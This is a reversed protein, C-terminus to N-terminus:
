KETQEGGYAEFAADDSEAAGLDISAGKGHGNKAAGGSSGHRMPAPKAVHKAPAAATRVAKRAPQVRVTAVSQHNDIKFFSIAGRLQEAQGALEGATASVEESAAANQQIVQDLQQLAKNIQGAGADQERSAATIEQVLEATRQVDPLIRALLAGAKEAVTVSSGSLETIEGAAKQSREALKRVESAVVAFGKGHEGARAAEIAANLALLNTQRAIEDIISIKGAILKMAEVTQNVASGGEKADIAAKLAIKETQSANDANQRINSSMQEMSSSVEEISAAQETAGESMQESSSSLQQSGSGVQESSGRVDVVIDSLKKVMAALSKMLEDRDSRAEVTVMLNGGAIEKAVGSIKEMGGVMVKLAKMLEDNESRERVEVKLDGAAVDKAIQTVRELAGKMTRVAELLQGVEDESAQEVTMSMDGRAISEVLSVASQLGRRIMSAISLALVFGLAVCIGLTVWIMMKADAFIRDGHHSAEVAGKANLEGDHKLATMANDFLKLGARMMERAEANKHQRNLDIVRRAETLYEAWATKFVEYLRREEDSTILREYTVGVAQLDAIAADFKGESVAMEDDTASLLHRMEQRRAANVANEMKSLNTVSPLWNVEIDTATGNVRDLQVVSFVGLFAMMGLLLVVVCLLKSGIKLNRFWTM